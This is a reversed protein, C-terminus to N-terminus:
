GLLVVEKLEEDEYDSEDKIVDARFYDSYQVNVLGIDFENIDVAATSHWYDHQPQAIRVEQDPNFQSLINILDSVKM